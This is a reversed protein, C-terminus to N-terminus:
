NLNCYKVKLTKKFIVCINTSKEGIKLAAELISKLATCRHHGSHLTFTVDEDTSFVIFKAASVVSTTEVAMDLAKELNMTPNAM